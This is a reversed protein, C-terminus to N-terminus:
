DIEEWHLDLTASNSNRHTQINRRIQGLVLRMGFIFSSYDDLPINVAVTWRDESLLVDTEKTFFLGKGFARPEPQVSKGVDWQWMIGAVYM